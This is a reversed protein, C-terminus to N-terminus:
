TKLGDVSRAMGRVKGVLQNRQDAEQRSGLGGLRAQEM